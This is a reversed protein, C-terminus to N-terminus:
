QRNSVHLLLCSYMYAVSQADAVSHTSADPNANPETNSCSNSHTHPQADAYSDANTNPAAKRYFIHIEFRSERTLEM